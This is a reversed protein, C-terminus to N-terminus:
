LHRESLNHPLIVLQMSICIKRNHNEKYIPRQLDIMFSKYFDLDLLKVCFMMSGKFIFKTGLSRSYSQNKHAIQTHMVGNLIKM